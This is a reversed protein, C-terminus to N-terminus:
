FLVKEVCGEGFGHEEMTEDGCGWVDFLSHPKISAVKNRCSEVGAICKCM